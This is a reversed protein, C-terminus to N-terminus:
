CTCICIRFLRLKLLHAIDRCTITTWIQSSFILLFCFMFFTLSRLMFVWFLASCQNIKLSFFQLTALCRLYQYKTVLVINLFQLLCIVVSPVSSDKSIFDLVRYLNHSAMYDTISYNSMFLFQTFEYWFFILLSSLFIDEEVFIQPLDSALFTNNM